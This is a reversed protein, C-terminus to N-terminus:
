VDGGGMDGEEERFWYVPYGSGGSHEFIAEAMDKNNKILCWRKFIEWGDYEQVLM